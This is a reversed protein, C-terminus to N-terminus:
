ERNKERREPGICAKVCLGCIKQGINWKKKFFDLQASCQDLRFDRRNKHIAKAPCVGICDYCDACDRDIPEGTKLPLDTLVTVYRMRSGYVSHVLLNNRGFWGLGARYAVLKHSLHGTDGKWDIIHSSGIPMADYGKSQIHATLQLAISDLLANVQRYHYRYTTTPGNEITEILADSLRYGVSIGYRFRACEDAPPASGASLVESMDAVGFSTAGLSGAIDDLEDFNSDKENMNEDYCVPHM